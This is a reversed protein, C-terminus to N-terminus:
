CVFRAAQEANAIETMDQKVANKKTELTKEASVMEALVNYRHKIV